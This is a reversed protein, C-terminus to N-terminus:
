VSLLQKEIAQLRGKLSGDIIQDGLRLLYGGILSKDEKEDLELTKGLKAQLKAKVENLLHSDPREAFYLTGKVINQRERWLREYEREIHPILDLRRRDALLELLRLTLEHVKGGFVSILLQKKEAPPVGPHRLVIGFDPTAGVVQNVARLNELVTKDSGADAALQMVADAYQGAVHSLDSSM